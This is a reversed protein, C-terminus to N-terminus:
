NTRGPVKIGFAKMIKPKMGVNTGQNVNNQITALMDSNAYSQLTNKVVDPVDSMFKGNNDYCTTNNTQAIAECIAEFADTKFSNLDKDTM